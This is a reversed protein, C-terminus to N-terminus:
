YKIVDKVLDESKTLKNKWSDLSIQIKLKDLNSINSVNVTIIRQKEQWSNLKNFTNHFSRCDHLKGEINFLFNGLAKNSKQICSLKLYLYERSSKLQENILLDEDKM